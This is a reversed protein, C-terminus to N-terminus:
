EGCRWLDYPVCWAELRSELISWGLRDPSGGAESFLERMRAVTRRVAADSAAGIMDEYKLVNADFWGRDGEREPLFVTVTRRGVHHPVGMVEGLFAALSEVACDLTPRKSDRLMIYARTLGEDMSEHLPEAYIVPASTLTGGGKQQPAGM